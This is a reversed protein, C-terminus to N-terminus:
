PDFFLLRGLAVREANRPHAVPNDSPAVMTPFLQRLGNSGEPVGVTAEDGPDDAPVPWVGLGGFAALIFAVPSTLAWLLKKPKRSIKVHEDNPVDSTATM